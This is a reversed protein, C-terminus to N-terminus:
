SQQYASFALAIGGRKPNHYGYSRLKAQICGDAHKCSYRIHFRFYLVDCLIDYNRLYDISYKEYGICKAEMAKWEKFLELSIDNKNHESLAAYAEEYNDRSNTCFNNFVEKANEVDTGTVNDQFFQFVFIAGIVVTLMVLIIILKKM